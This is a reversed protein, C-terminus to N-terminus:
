LGKPIAVGQYVAPKAAASKKKSGKFLFWGFLGLLFIAVVAGALGEWLEESPMYGVKIEVSPSSPVPMNNKTWWYIPAEGLLGQLQRSSATNCDVDGKYQLFFIRGAEDHGTYETFEVTGNSLQQLADQCDLKLKEQLQVWRTGSGPPIQLAQTATLQEPANGMRVYSRLNLTAYYATVLGGALVGAIVLFLVVPQQKGGSRTSTSSM